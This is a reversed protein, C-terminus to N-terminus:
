AVAVAPKAADHLKASLLTRGDATAMKADLARYFVQDFEKLFVNPDGTTLEVFHKIKKGMESYDGVSYDILLAPFRVLGVKSLEGALLAAARRRDEIETDKKYCWKVFAYGFIAALLVGMVTLAITTGSILM